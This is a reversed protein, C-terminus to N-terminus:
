HALGLQQAAQNCLSAGGRGLWENLRDSSSRGAQADAYIGSGWYVYRITEAPWNSEPKSAGSIGANYGALGFRVENSRAALAQKLYAMGRYANTNPNYADEEPAFHFPMVQFLGMAGASSIARPHGCSEIQMVTAILNPDLDFEQSWRQIDTQWYQVEPTFLPAIVGMSSPNNGNSITAQGAAAAAPPDMSFEIQSLLIALLFGVTVVALPPLWYGHFAPPHTARM